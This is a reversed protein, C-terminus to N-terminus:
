KNTNISVFIHWLSDYQSRRRELHPTIPRPQKPAESTAGKVPRPVKLGCSQGSPPRWPSAATWEKGEVAGSEAKELAYKLNFDPIGSNGLSSENRCGYNLTKSVSGESFGTRTGSCTVPSKSRWSKLLIHQVSHELFFRFWLLSIIELSSAKLIQHMKLKRDSLWYGRTMMVSSTLMPEPTTERIVGCFCWCSGAPETVQTTMITIVILFLSARM